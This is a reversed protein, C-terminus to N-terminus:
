QVAEFEEDELFYCVGSLCQEMFEADYEFITGSPVLIEDDDDLIDILLRCKTGMEM